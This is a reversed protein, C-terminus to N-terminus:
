QDVLYVVSEFICTVQVSGFSSDSELPMDFNESSHEKKESVVDCKAADNTGSKMKSNPTSLADMSFGEVIHEQNM